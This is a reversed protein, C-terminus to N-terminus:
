PEAEDTAEDASEKGIEINGVFHLAVDSYGGIFSEYPEEYVNGSLADIYYRKLTVVHTDHEEVLNVEHYRRYFYICEGYYIVGWDGSVGKQEIVKEKKTVFSRTTQGMKVTFWNRNGIGPVTERSM